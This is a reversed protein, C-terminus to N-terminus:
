RRPPGGARRGGVADPWLRNLDADFLEGNKMVMHVKESQRIDELPNGDLIVLDALKGVELTGLDAGLGIYDAGAKTAARLAQHPTLGGQALMWLEWHAGLGQLQGHAGLQVSGGADVVAKAAKALEVHYFEADPVLMRRRARADLQDGRVFRRLREDAFVDSMQYWYNEGWVGGYGVILTPTYGTRSRALLTVVDTYLPAVPIAHEIGTHGDLIMTLNQQLMSGGEPVVLMREDRAAQMIWQRSDRRLQNYSKVSFAGLAKLRRVHARADELSATVAKNPNEAGYLIFGTSYVRPGTVRGAEVLEGLAFVSQTSASPDHTTTVGYALNAEYEWLRQPLVDLTSYGMHAHVDVLGPIITKDPLPVTRATLPLDPCPTPCIRQIRSGRVEIDAKEIVEDGKMTIVRAGRLVITGMPEARPVRLAIETIRAPVIANVRVWDDGTPGTTGTAGAMGGAVADAVTQEYVAPGLSWTVARSDSRWRIWDGGVRSLRVAKVDGKAEITVPAGTVPLPALYVDHLEKFAVWRGDPSPVMEEARENVALTRRDLGEPTVSSLVTKGDRSETVLLRTGDASWAVGPMRRGSGRNETRMVATPVGGAVPLLAVSLYPEDALDAGRNVAGSGQILAITRGDPSVAPNAYQNAVRTLQVPKPTKATLDVSWVHGGASDDWTTYVLTRGDPAFAPAFEFPGAALGFSPMPMGDGSPMARPGGRQARRQADPDETVRTPTGGAYPMKWLSGLAEFVLTAGDPSVVPRRIAKALLVDDVRYDFRLASEVVQEVEATFPIDTVRGDGVQGEAVAVRRLKGGFTVVVASGDPTWAYAPYAGHVTWTEMQDTDLGDFALREAGTALDRLVLVTELGVRRVFALTKGDPSVTPRVAGGPATTVPEVEGTQRDVRSVQFIGAHPNKNYDFPTTWSYYVWRGDRSPHPENQDSTFSTRDKLKAAAGTPVHFLWIEGGGISRTSRVHRKAVVYDGDPMWAPATPFSDDLKTLQRANGGDADVLWLNDMGSRDSVFVIARGDPSYRPQHDFARGGTLRQAPGGGMPVRYLDGLLDFVVWQGDPSVDLNMWTGEDTTFRVTDAPGHVDTVNWTPTQAAVATPLMLVAAFVRFASM